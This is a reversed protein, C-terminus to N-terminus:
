YNLLKTKLRSTGYTKTQTSRISKTRLKTQYSARYIVEAMAQEDERFIMYYGNESQRANGNSIEMWLSKILQMLKEPYNIVSGNVM